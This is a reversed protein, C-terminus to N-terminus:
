DSDLVEPKSDQGTVNHQTRPYSVKSEYQREGGLHLFPYECYLVHPADWGQNGVADFKCDKGM